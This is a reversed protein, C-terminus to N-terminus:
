RRDRTNGSHITQKYASLDIDFEGVKNSNASKSGKDDVARVLYYYNTAASGAAGPDTFATNTTAGISDGPPSHPQTDRYIVYQSITEPNGLTDTTVPSWNLVVDSSSKDARLDTIAAPPADPELSEIYKWRIADAIVIENADNSLTVDGVTGAAFPYTGLKYWQEGNTEQNVRVTDVGSLHHILFPADTARNSGQVWYAFVDYIGDYLLDPTWTATRNGPGEYAWNYNTGYPNGYAGTSWDGVTIFDPWGDENDVIIEPSACYGYFKRQNNPFAVVEKGGEDLVNSVTVTYLTNEFHTSTTLHILRQDSVDRIANITALGGDFSYNTPNQGTTLDVNRNFLLDVHNSDIPLAVSAIFPRTGKWAMEPISDYSAYPGSLLASKYSGDLYGAAFMVEGQAGIVRCSEIEAVMTGAGFDLYIGIGGYVHRGYSNTVHNHLRQAFLDTDGTYGMTAIFDLIEAELWGHSDQFYYTYGSYFDGWVAASIKVWPKLSTVSDYCAAVMETVLTRRFASWEGPCTSPTCGPYDRAFRALSSDDYSHSSNPYRIYDLHIGDVDYNTAIDMIVDNVHQAAQPIGPSISAYGSESPDMPIGEEDVMIWEPHANYIHDPHSPPSSGSWAPMSNVYAHLELGRTHAEYIAVALPDYGPYSGGVRDSWPEHQSIYFADGQGRIQFLVTNMNCSEINALENEIDQRDNWEFRTFWACRAEEATAVTNGLSLLVIAAMGILILARWLHFGEIKKMNQEKNTEIEASFYKCSPILEEGAFPHLAFFRSGRTVDLAKAKTPLRGIKKGL